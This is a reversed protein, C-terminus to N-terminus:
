IRQVVAIFGIGIDFPHWHVCVLIWKGDRLFWVVVRSHLSININLIGFSPAIGIFLCVM